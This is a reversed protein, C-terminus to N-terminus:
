FARRSLPWDHCLAAQDHILATIIFQHFAIEKVASM